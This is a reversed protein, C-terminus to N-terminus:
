SSAGQAKTDILALIEKMSEAVMLLNQLRESHWIDFSSSLEVRVDSTNQPFSLYHFSLESIPETIM